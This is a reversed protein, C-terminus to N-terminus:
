QGMLTIFTAYCSEERLPSFELLWPVVWRHGGKDTKSFSLPLQFSVPPFVLSVLPHKQKPNLPAFNM